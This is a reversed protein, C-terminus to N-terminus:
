GREAIMLRGTFIETAGEANIVGVTYIGLLPIDVSQRLTGTPESGDTRTDYVFNTNFSDDQIYFDFANTSTAAVVIIQRLYANVSTFKQTNFSWAGASCTQNIEIELIM